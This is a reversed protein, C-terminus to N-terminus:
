GSSWNCLRSWNAEKFWLGRTYQTTQNSLYVCSFPWSSQVSCSQRLGPSFYVGPHCNMTLLDSLIM